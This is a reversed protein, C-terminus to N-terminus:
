DSRNKSVRGLGSAAAEPALAPKNILMQNGALAPALNVRVLSVAGLPLPVALLNLRGLFSNMRWSWRPGLMNAGWMISGAEPLFRRLCGQVRWPSIFNNFGDGAGTNGQRSRKKQSLWYGLYHWSWRSPFSLLVGLSALRFMEELVADPNQCFELGNLCVVYDFSGDDYPLHEPSGQTFEARGHLREQAKELLYPSREQGTVDFGSQWFSELFHGAGCFLELLNHGRRPWGSTMRRVMAEQALLAFSGSGSQYWNEYRMDEPTAHGDEKSATGSTGSVRSM